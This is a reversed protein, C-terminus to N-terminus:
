SARIQEGDIGNCVPYAFGTPDFDIESTNPLNHMMDSADKLSTMKIVGFLIWADLLLLQKTKITYSGVHSFRHFFFLIQLKVNTKM